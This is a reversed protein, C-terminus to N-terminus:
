TGSALLIQGCVSHSLQTPRRLIDLPSTSGGNVFAIRSHVNEHAGYTTRSLQRMPELNHVGVTRVQFYSADRLYVRTARQAKAPIHDRHPPGRGTGSAFSQITTFSELAYVKDQEELCV